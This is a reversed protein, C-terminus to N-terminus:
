VNVKTSIRSLLTNVSDKDTIELSVAGEPCQTVCRGCGRCDESIVARNNEISIANIFCTNLCTGCGICNDTITVVVSDLKTVSDSIPGYLDPLMKWLCCCECCHCVTLLNEAPKINLWVSDLKNRGILHVLGAQRCKTVHDLAEEISALHGLDPNIGLVADGMFLCGLNIPYHRCNESARCICENMIWRYSATKIFHELITSPLVINERPSIAEEIPLYVMDDEHFLLKQVVRGIPSLQTVKAQSFRSPFLKKILNVQWMPRSMSIEKISM